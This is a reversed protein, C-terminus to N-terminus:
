KIPGTHGPVLIAADRALESQLPTITDNGGAPSMLSVGINANTDACDEDFKRPGPNPPVAGGYNLGDGHSLLLTHGLEHALVRYFPGGGQETMQRVEAVMAYQHAVDDSILHRPVVCLDAGNNRFVTSAHGPNVGLSASPLGFSDVLYRAFIVIIGTKQANHGLSWVTLCAQYAQKMESTELQIGPEGVDIDGIRGPGTKTFDPTGFPPPPQPDDIVPTNFAPGQLTEYLTQYFSINAGPIWVKNNLDTIAQTVAQDLLDNSAISPTGHQVTLDTGKVACVRLPLLIRGTPLSSSLDSSSLDCALLVCMSFLLVTVCRLAADRRVRHRLM